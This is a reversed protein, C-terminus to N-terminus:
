DWGNAMWEVRNKSSADKLQYQHILFLWVTNVIELAPRKSLRETLFVRTFTRMTNTILQTNWKMTLQYTQHLPHIKPLIDPSLLLGSKISFVPTEEWTLRIQSLTSESIKMVEEQVVSTLRWMNWMPTMVGWLCMKGPFVFTPRTSLFLKQAEVQYHIDDPGFSYNTITWLPEIKPTLVSRAQVQM